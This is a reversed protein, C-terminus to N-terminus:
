CTTEQASALCFCNPGSSFTTIMFKKLTEFTFYDMQAILKYNGVLSLDTGKLRATLSAGRSGGPIDVMDTCNFTHIFQSEDPRLITIELNVM